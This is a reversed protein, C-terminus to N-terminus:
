LTLSNHRPHWAGFSLRVSGLSLLGLNLSLRRFIAVNCKFSLGHVMLMLGMVISHYDEWAIESKNNKAVIKQRTARNMLSSVNRTHSSVITAWSVIITMQHDIFRRHYFSPHLHAVMHNLNKYCDVYIFLLISSAGLHVSVFM